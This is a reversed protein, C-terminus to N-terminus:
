DGGPHSPRLQGVVSWSIMSINLHQSPQSSAISSIDIQMYLRNYAPFELKPLTPSHAFPATDSCYTLGIHTGRCFCVNYQDEIILYHTNCKLKNLCIIYM